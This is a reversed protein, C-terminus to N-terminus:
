KRRKQCYPGPVGRHTVYAYARVGVLEIVYTMLWHWRYTNRHVVIMEIVDYSGTDARYLISIDLYRYVHCYKNM